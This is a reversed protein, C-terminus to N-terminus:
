RGYLGGISCKVSLNPRTGSLVCSHLSICSKLVIPISERVGQDTARIMAYRWVVEPLGNDTERYPDRKLRAAVLAFSYGTVMLQHVVQAFYHMPIHGDDWPVLDKPGRFSGTKAELVGLENNSATIEGDLTAGIFPYSDMVLIDYPHWDIRFQPFDLKVLERIPAEADIGFQVCAKGSIDEPPVLGTKVNYLYDITKWPNIGLRISAESATTLMNKGIANKADLWNQRNDFHRRIM